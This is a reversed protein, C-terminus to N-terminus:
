RSVTAPAFFGVMRVPADGVVMLSHEVGAPLYIAMEPGVFFAEGGAKVLLEGDVVFYGHDQTSHVHPDARGGAQIRVWNIQVRDSGTRDRGIMVRIDTLSHGDAVHPAVHKAKIVRVGTKRDSSADKTPPDDTM